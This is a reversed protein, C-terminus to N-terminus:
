VPYMILHFYLWNINLYKDSSLYKENCKLLYSEVLKRLFSDIINKRFRMKLPFASSLLKGSNRSDKAPHAEPMHVRKRMQEVLAAQEVVRVRPRTLENDPNEPSCNPIHQETM